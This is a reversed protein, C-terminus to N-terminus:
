DVDWLAVMGHFGGAAALMGNPSFTIAQIPGIGPDFAPLLKWTGTQWYEVRPTGGFPAAALRSGDPTFALTYGYAFTPEEFVLRGDAADRVQTGDLGRVAVWRGDPSVAAARVSTHKRFTLDFGSLERGTAADLIAVRKSILFVRTGAAAYGVCPYIDYGAACAAEWITSGDTIDRCFAKPREARLIRTGDPSVATDDCYGPVPGIPRQAMSTLDWLVAPTDYSTAVVLRTPGGAFGVFRSDRTGKLNVPRKGTVVDWVRVNSKKCAAALRTGDASFALCEVTATDTVTLHRM